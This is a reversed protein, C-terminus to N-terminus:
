ERGFYGASGAVGTGTGSLGWRQKAAMAQSDLSRAIRDMEASRQPDAERYHDALQGFGDAFVVLNEIAQNRDAESQGHMALATGNSRVADLWAQLMGERSEMDDGFEYLALVRTQGSGTAGSSRHDVQQAIRTLGDGSAPHTVTAAFAALLAVAAIGTILKRYTTMTM